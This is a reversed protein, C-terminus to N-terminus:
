LRGELYVGRARAVAREFEEIISKTVEVTRLRQFVESGVWAAIPTSTGGNGHLQDWMAHLILSQMTNNAEAPSSLAEGVRKEVVTRIDERILKRLDKRDGEIAQAALRRAVLEGITVAEHDGYEDSVVAVMSLIEEVPVAVDIRVVENM